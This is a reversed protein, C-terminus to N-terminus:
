ALGYNAQNVYMYKRLHGSLDKAVAGADNAQTYVHVNGINTSHSTNQSMQMRGSAAAGAGARSAISRPGQQGLGMSVGGAIQEESLRGPGTEKPQAARIWAAAVKPDTMDIKDQPRVGIGRAIANVYEPTSTKNWEKAMADVTYLHRQQQYEVLKRVSDAVGEEM